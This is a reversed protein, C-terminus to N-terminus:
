VGLRSHQRRSRTRGYVVCVLLSVVLAAACLPWYVIWALASDPLPEPFLLMGQFAVLVLNLVNLLVLLVARRFRKNMVLLGLALHPAAMYFYNSWFYKLSATGTVLLTALYVVGPFALAAILWFWFSRGQM